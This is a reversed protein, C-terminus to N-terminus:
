GGVNAGIDVPAHDISILQTVATVTGEGTSKTDQVDLVIPHGNIGGAANIDDAYMQYVNFEGQGWESGDGTEGVAVGVTIANANKQRLVHWRWGVLAVALVVVIAILIKQNKTM